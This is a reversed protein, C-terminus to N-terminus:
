RKHGGDALMDFPQHKSKKGEPLRSKTPLLLLATIRRKRDSLVNPNSSTAIEQPDEPKRPQLPVM